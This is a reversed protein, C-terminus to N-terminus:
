SRKELFRMAWHNSCVYNKKYEGNLLTTVIDSANGHLQRCCIGVIYSVFLLPFHKRLTLEMCTHRSYGKAM